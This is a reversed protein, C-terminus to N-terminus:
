LGLEKLYGKMQAQMEVLETEIHAINQQVVDIDV